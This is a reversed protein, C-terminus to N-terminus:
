VPKMCAQGSRCEGVVPVTEQCIAIARVYEPPCIASSNTFARSEGLSVSGISISRVTTGKASIEVTMNALIETGTEHAVTVNVSCTGTISSNYKVEKVILSSGICKIQKESQEGVVSTQTKALTTLWISVIAAIAVTFGIILVIAIMPSLGKM